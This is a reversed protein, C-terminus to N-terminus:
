KDLLKNSFSIIRDWDYTNVGHGKTTTRHFYGVNRGIADSQNAGPWSVDPLGSKGLFEWVPTARRLALFEGETDFHPNDYGQVFLGRPAICSQLMHQDFTMSQEKGAYGAYHPTFWHPYSATEKAITEKGDLEHKTLPCGGSGTQIPCVVAIRSDYCGAILAAKGLRSVGTVVIKEADLAPIDEIMDVGRILSWGWAMLTMTNNQKSADRPAWLDFMVTFPDPHGTSSQEFDPAVEANCATVFAYGKTLFTGIPYTYNRKVSVDIDKLLIGRSSADARNNNINYIPWNDMWATPIIVQEDELFAQNGIYNLTLIVKAPKTACSWSPRVVLWNLTRSAAATTLTMEYQERIAPVGQVTTNGSEVLHINMIPKAPMKGYMEDEFIKLIEARREEWDPLTEVNRGDAFVLPNDNEGTTVEVAEVAISRIFLIGKTDGTTPHVSGKTGVMIRDQPSLSLGKLELEYWQGPVPTSFTKIKDSATPHYKFDSTYGSVNANARDLVAVCWQNTETAAPSMVELKVNVKASGSGGAFGFEPTMVYGKGNNSSTKGQGTQLMGPRVFVDMESAWLGLRSNQLATAYNRLPYSGGMGSEFSAAVTRRDSAFDAMSEPNYGPVKLVPDNDWRLMSFDESFALGRGNIVVDSKLNFQTTSAKFLNSTENTATNKVSIWYDTGSKLGSFVFSPSSATGLEGPVFSYQMVKNQMTIDEYITVDYPYEAETKSDQGSTWRIALTSSGAQLCSLKIFSIEEWKSESTAGQISYLQGAEWKGGKNNVLTYRAKETEVTLTIKSPSCPPVNFWLQFDEAGMEGDIMTTIQTQDDVELVAKRVNEGKRMSSLAFRLLATQRQMPFVLKEAQAGSGRKGPDSAICNVDADMLDYACNCTNGKQVRVEGPAPTKVPYSVHYRWDGTMRPLKASFDETQANWVSRVSKEEGGNVSYRLNIVDGDSWTFRYADGDALLAAKINPTSADFHVEVLDAEPIEPTPVMAERSCSAMAVLLIQFLIRMKKKM